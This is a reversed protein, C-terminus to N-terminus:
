YFMFINILIQNEYVLADHRSYLILIANTFFLYFYLIIDFIIQRFVFTLITIFLTLTSASTCENIFLLMNYLIYVHAM